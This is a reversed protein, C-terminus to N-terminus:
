LYLIGAEKEDYNKSKYFTNDRFCFGYDLGKM